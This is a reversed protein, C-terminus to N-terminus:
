IEKYHKGRRIDRVASATVGLREGLKWAPETSARVEVVQVPTLKRKPSVSTNGRARGKSVMDRTNDRHSGVFLHDFRFCAPTDCRHLVLRGDIDVGALRMIWRHLLWNRGERRLVGYGHNNRAGRWLRCPTM